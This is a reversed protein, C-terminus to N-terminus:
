RHGATAALHEPPARSGPCGASPPPPVAPVPCRAHALCYRGASPALTRHLRGRGGAGIM